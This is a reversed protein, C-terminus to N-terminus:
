VASEFSCLSHTKQGASRWGRLGYRLTGALCIESPAAGQGYQRTGQGIM